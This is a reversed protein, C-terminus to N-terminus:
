TYRGRYRFGDGTPRDREGLTCTARAERVTYQSSAAAARCAM